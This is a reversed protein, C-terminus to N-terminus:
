LGATTYTCETVKQSGERERKEALELFQEEERNSAADVIDDWNSEKQKEHGKWEREEEEEEKEQTPKMRIFHYIMM